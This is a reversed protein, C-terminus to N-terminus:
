MEANGIIPLQSLANKMDSENVTIPSTSWAKYLFLVASFFLIIGLIYVMYFYGYILIVLCCRWLPGYTSDQKCTDGSPGYFILNGYIYFSIEPIVVILMFVFDLKAQAVGPDKLRGWFVILAIKRLVEVGQIYACGVIFVSLHSVCDNDGLFWDSYFSFTIVLIYSLLVM